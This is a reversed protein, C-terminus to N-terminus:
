LHFSRPLLEKVSFDRSHGDLDPLSFAVYVPTVSPEATEAVPEAQAPPEPAQVPLRAAYFLAGAMLAVFATAILLFSRQM